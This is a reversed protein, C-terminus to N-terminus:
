MQSQTLLGVRRGVYVRVSRDPHSDTKTAEVAASCLLGANGRIATSIGSWPTTRVIEKRCPCCVAIQLLAYALYLHILSFYPELFPAM